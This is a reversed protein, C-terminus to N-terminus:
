LPMGLIIENAEFPVVVPFFGSPLHYTGRPLLLFREEGQGQELSARPRPFHLMIAGSESAGGQWRLALWEWVGDM